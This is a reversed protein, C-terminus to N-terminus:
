FGPSCRLPWQGGALGGVSYGARGARFIRGWNLLTLLWPQMERALPGGAMGGVSYRARGAQFIRKLLATYAVISFERKFHCEWNLLTLLWPQMERAMPGGALGGVSDRARGARFIRKLLATYAM